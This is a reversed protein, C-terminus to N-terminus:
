KWDPHSFKVIVGAHDSPYLGTMTMDSPEEGVLAASQVAFLNRVMVYDSRKDLNPLTKSYGPDLPNAATWADAFGANMFNVCTPFTPDNPNSCDCNLDAAVIVPLTTQAPGNLLELGQPVELLASASDLHAGIFRFKEGRYTIDASVWGRPMPMRCKTDPSLANPCLNANGDLAYLHVSLTATWTNGQANTFSLHEPKLDSRALLAVAWTNRVWGLTSPVTADWTTRYFVLRYQAGQAALADLLLQLYDFESTLNEKNPGTSLTFVEQLSVLHPSKAAIERAVAQARGAPDSARVDLVLNTAAKLFDPLTPSTMGAYETGVYTNYTMVKLKGGGPDSPQAAIPVALFLTLLVSFVIGAWRRGNKIEYNRM